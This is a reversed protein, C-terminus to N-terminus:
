INDRRDVISKLYSNKKEKEIKESRDEMKTKEM